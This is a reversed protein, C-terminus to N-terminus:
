GLTVVERQAASARAADLVEMVRVADELPVPVPAGDRVAAAFARYFAGYDGPAGRIARREEGSVIAGGDAEGWWPEGPRTGARLAAEQPDSGEHVWVGRAGAARIRRGEDGALLGAWLHSVAGGAHRLALFVDDDAEVGDRRAAIEAYVTEAPGPPGRAPDVLHPGLDLLVGGGEEAGSRERWAGAKPEPRWRDFRSEFAHVAGLEGDAVIRRLTSFDADWRRNHFVGGRRGGWGGGGAGRGAGGAVFARPKDAGVARGAETGGPARARPM